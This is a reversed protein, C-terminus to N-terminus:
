VLGGDTITWGRSVLTNRRTQGATTYKITGMGLTVNLQGGQVCADLLNDYNASSFQLHTRQGMFNAMNTISSLDWNSLDQDFNDTNQFMGEM